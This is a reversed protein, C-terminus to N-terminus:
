ETTDWERRFDIGTYYFRIIDKWIMGGDAQCRAGSASMGIGHGWLTKGADCPVVVGKLYSVSGAWVESWSRTRGDSRSFYPTIATQGDYTVTVGATAQVAETLHPMRTEQGYGKYVQDRYADVTFGEAVYKTKRQWQYYAYTRAATTMTKLFDTPANDSTEALGRLYLEIPIENIIWTRDKKNNYRMELINRFQNDAFKTGRTARRDFNAITLVSGVVDPIFRIPYSSSELGRGADYLYKGDKYLAVVQAGRIVDVLPNGQDDRLSMMECDCSIVVKNQTEEDVLFVGVRLMPETIKDARDLIGDRLPAVVADPADSTVDVPIVVEGGEVIEGDASFIFTVLHEGITRPATFTFTLFDLRGPLINGDSKFTLESSDALRISRRVWTKEGANKIGVTYSVPVGGATVIKKESRILVSADYGLAGVRERPAEDLLGEVSTGSGDETLTKAAVTIHLTVKGGPIWTTDEAVLQFSEDYTGSVMPARLEFTIKGESGVAVRSPMIRKVQTPGLWTGPDFVSKRYKPDMTYLSVYAVGDNRWAKTGINKYGIAVEKKEGPVFQLQTQSPVSIALAEYGKRGAASVASPYVLVFFIILVRLFRM